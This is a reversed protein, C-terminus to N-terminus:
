ETIRGTTKFERYRFLVQRLATAHCQCRHALDLRKKELNIMKKRELEKIREVLWREFVNM